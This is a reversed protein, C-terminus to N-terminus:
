PSGPSVASTPHGPSVGVPQLGLSQANKFAAYAAIFLDVGEITGNFFAGQLAYWRRRLEEVCHNPVTGSLYDLAGENVIAQFRVHHYPSFSFPGDYGIFTGQPFLAAYSSGLERLSDCCVAYVPIGQLHAISRLDIFPVPNGKADQGLLIDPQGHGYFFLAHTPHLAQILTSENVSQERLFVTSYGHHQALTILESAWAYTFSTEIDYRTAAVIITPM